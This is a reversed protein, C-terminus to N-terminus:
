DLWGLAESTALHCRYWGALWVISNKISLIPHGNTVRSHGKSAQKAIYKFFRPNRLKDFM